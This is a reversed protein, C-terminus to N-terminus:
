QENIFEKLIISEKRIVLNHLLEAIWERHEIFEFGSLSSNLEELFSIQKEIIPVESGSWDLHTPLLSINKFDDFSNNIRCFTVIAHLAQTESLNCMIGFLSRMCSNDNCYRAIYYDIWADRKENRTSDKEYALLKEALPNWLHPFSPQQILSNVTISILELYNDQDWLACLCNMEDHGIRNNCIASIIQPLTNKDIQVLQTLFIGHYDFYNLSNIAHIYATTLVDLNGKFYQFSEHIHNEDRLIESLFHASLYPKKESVSNLNKTYSLLFGPCIHEVRIATQFTICDAQECLLSNTIRECFSIDILKDPIYNYLATLWFNQVPFSKSNIYDVANAYGLAEILCLVISDTGSWYPAQHEIYSDCATIFSVQDHTSLYSFLTDINTGVTWKNLDNYQMEEFHLIDWLDALNKTPITCAIETIAALRACNAEDSSRFKFDYNTRLVTLLKYTTNQKSTPLEHPWAIGIKDALSEFHDLIKCTTYDNTDIPLIFCDPLIQIDNSIVTADEETKSSSPYSLITKSAIASFRQEKQFSFLVKLAMKRLLLLTDCAVVGFQCFSYTNDTGGTVSSYELKILNSAVFIIALGSLPSNVEDHYEQLKRFLLLEESYDHTYSKIDIGWKNSFLSLIDVPNETNKEFCYLALQIASEFNDSYKFRSLIDILESSICEPNRTKAFDFSLLNQKKEPLLDIKRKVYALTEEPILEHFSKIFELAEYDCNKKIELWASHVETRVYAINGDTNFLNILTNLAFVLKNRYKPFTTLVMYSLPIWKEKFFVYYLFYDRLNQNEIKIAKNEYIDVIEKAHLSLCAERFSIADIGSHLAIEFPLESEELYFSGFFSIIAAVTIENHDFTYVIDSYYDNLIDFSNNLKEFDKKLACIAAMIAIRMNGKAIHLIRDQTQKNRINLNAVLIQSISDNSLKSVEYVCPLTITKATTLTKNKAYDRVTIIIKVNNNHEPTLITDLLLKLQLLQDADDILIIYKRDDSFTSKVDEYINEGNSKIIKLDYNKSNAFRKAAELALKTKGIGSPGTILLTQNNVLLEDLDQLEKDRCLLPMDLSVSYPNHSIHALFSDVDFIQHTDIAISLHDKSLDPYKLYVDYSVEAVGILTTNPYYSCLQKVQAPKFNSATHCCIIQSIDETCIGTKTSDLCAQIDSEIKNYPNSGVTGYQILIFRGDDCRVFADPTGKTTKNTGLQSGYSEINPFGFRKMLYLEMFKQYAGPDLSLIANQIQNIKTM